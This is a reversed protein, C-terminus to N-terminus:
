KKGVVMSCEFNLRINKAKLFCPSIGITERIERTYEVSSNYLDLAISLITLTFNCYNNNRTSTTIKMRFTVFQYIFYLM